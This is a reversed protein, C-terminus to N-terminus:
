GEAHSLSFPSGVGLECICHSYGIINLKNSNGAILVPVPLHGFEPLCDRAPTEQPSGPLTKESRISFCM